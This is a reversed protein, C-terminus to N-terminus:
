QDNNLKLTPGKCRQSQVVIFIGDNAVEKQCVRCRLKHGKQKTHKQFEEGPEYLMGCSCQYNVRMYRNMKATINLAQKMKIKLKNEGDSDSSSPLDGLEIEFDEDYEVDDDDDEESSTQAYDEEMNKNEAPM